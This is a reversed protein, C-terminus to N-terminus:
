LLLMCYPHTQLNTAQSGPDRWGRYRERYTAARWHNQNNTYKFDDGPGRDSCGELTKPWILVWRKMVDFSLCKAEENELRSPFQQGVEGAQHPPPRAQGISTM